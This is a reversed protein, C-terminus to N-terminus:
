WVRGAEAQAHHGEALGLGVGDFRGEALGALV